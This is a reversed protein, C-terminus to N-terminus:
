SNNKFRPDGMSLLNQQENAHGYPHFYDKDSMILKHIFGEKALWSEVHRKYLIQIQANNPKLQDVLQM